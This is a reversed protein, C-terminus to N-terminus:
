REQKNLYDAVSDLDYFVKAGNNKILDAVAQLSIVQSRTFEDSRDIRLYCFLTKHPFKNSSDVVEAISYVGQMKPTIVFLHYDCEQKQREEEQRAQDDWNDVVPDFFNIKLKDKIIARWDSGNCTGGLFVKNKPKELISQLEFSYFSYKCHDCNIKGNKLWQETSLNKKCKPCKWCKSCVKPGHRVPSFLGDCIVCNIM